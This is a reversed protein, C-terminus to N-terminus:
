QIKELRGVAAETQPGHGAVRRKIEELKERHRDKKLEHEWIRIVRWKKERIADAVSRDRKINKEIKSAWYDRNTSPLRCHDPCGHWFCGDVFVALRAKVFVFDPKGVMPYHRRWGKVGYQKFLFILRQETSKNGSGKVRSMIRSREKPSVTDM